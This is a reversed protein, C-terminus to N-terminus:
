GETGPWLLGSAAPGHTQDDPGHSPGPPSPVPRLEGPGEPPEPRQPRPARDGQVERRQRPRAGPRDLSQLDDHRPGRRDGSGPAGRAMQREDAADDGSERVKAVRM